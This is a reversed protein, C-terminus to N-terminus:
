EAVPAVVKDKYEIKICVQKDSYLKSDRCEEIPDKDIILAKIQECGSLTWMTIAMSLLFLAKM